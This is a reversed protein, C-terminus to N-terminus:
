KTIVIELYESPLVLTDDGSTNMANILDLIAVELESAKAEDMAAFAKHIPGYYDRFLDLWHQASHYRFNFHKKQAEIKKAPQFHTKIFDDTGWNSPPSVGKPAPAFQGITKFLQGIFGDPTWNAMGIKGGTKCVRLVESACQQQNPAFMVGFTSVVYDFMANSFPLAEADAQKFHIPLNDADARVRGSDLLSEVYDTSTVQCFRRAAALSINGNGAAVDLVTKGARLDLSECLEEGTIQVTVGVKSYDGAGWANQQKQKIAVYDPSEAQHTAKTPTHQSTQTAATTTNM